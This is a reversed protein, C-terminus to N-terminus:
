FNAVVHMFYTKLPPTPLTATGGGLPNNGALQEQYDLSFSAWRNLDFILGGIFVHYKADTTTNTTVKDYRAVVGFRSRATDLFALPRV